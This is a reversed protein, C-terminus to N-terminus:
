RPRAGNRRRRSRCRAATEADLRAIEMLRVIITVMGRRAAKDFSRDDHRTALPADLRVQFVFAERLMNRVSLPCRDGKLRCSEVHRRLTALGEAM